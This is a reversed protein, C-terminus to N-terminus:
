KGEFAKILEEIIITKPSKDKERSKNCIKDFLEKPIALQM